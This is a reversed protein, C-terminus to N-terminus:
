GRRSSHRNTRKLGLYGVTAVLAILGAIALIWRKRSSSNVTIPKLGQFQYETRISKTRDEVTTGPATFDIAFQAEPPVDASLKTVNLVARSRPEPSIISGDILKMSWYSTESVKRPLWVGSQGIESFDENDTQTILTGDPFRQEWRRVCFGKAPDLFYINTLEAPMGRAQRVSEPLAEGGNNPLPAKLIDQLIENPSVISIVLCSTQGVTARVVSKLRGNQLRDLIASQIPVQPTMKGPDIPLKIGVDDFYPLQVPPSQHTELSAPQKVVRKRIRTEYVKGDTAAEVSSSQDTRWYHFKGDKLIVRLHRTRASAGQIQTDEDWEIALSNYVSANAAAADSISSPLTTPATTSGARSVASKGPLNFAALLVILPSFIPVSRM